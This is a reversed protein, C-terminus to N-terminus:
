RQPLDPIAFHIGLCAGLAQVGNLFAELGELSAYRMPWEGSPTRILVRYTNIAPDHGLRETTLSVEISKALRTAADPTDGLHLVLEQFQAAAASRDGISHSTQSM